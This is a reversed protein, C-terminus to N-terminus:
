NNPFKEFDCLSGNGTNYNQYQILIAEALIALRYYIVLENKEMGVSHNILNTFVSQDNKSIITDSLITISKAGNLLQTCYGGIVSDISILEKADKQIAKPIASKTFAKLIYEHQKNKM